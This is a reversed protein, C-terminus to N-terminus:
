GAPIRTLSATAHARAISSRYPSPSADRVELLTRHGFTGFVRPPPPLRVGTKRTKPPVEGLAAPPSIEPRRWGGAAQASGLGATIDRRAVPGTGATLREQHREPEPRAAPGPPVDSSIELCRTRPQGRCTNRTGARERRDPSTPESRGGRDEFDFGRVGKDTGGRHTRPCGSCDVGDAVGSMRRNRSRCPRFVVSLPPDPAREDPVGPQRGVNDSRALLRVHSRGQTETPDEPDLDTRVPRHEDDPRQEREPQGAADDVAHQPDHDHRRDSSKRPESRACSSACESTAWRLPICTLPMVSHISPPTACSPPGIGDAPASNRM